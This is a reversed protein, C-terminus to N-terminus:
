SCLSGYIREHRQCRSELGPVCYSVPQFLDVTEPERKGAQNNATRRVRQRQRRVPAADVDTVGNCDASVLEATTTFAVFRADPTM